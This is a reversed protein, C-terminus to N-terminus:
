NSDRSDLWMGFDMARTSLRHKLLRGYRNRLISKDPNVIMTREPDCTTHLLTWAANDAPPLSYGIITIEEASRLMGAAMKWLRSFPQYPRDEGGYAKLFSPHLLIQSENPPRHPLSADVNHIGLGQLLLPDLAIETELPAPSLAERPIAGGGEASPRFDPSFTPKSYWGIAGHLHLVKVMSPPFDVRTKDYQNQQFVLDTGYGDGPAWKEQDLLVREITSDYNFTIVIDGSELLKGFRRLVEWKPCAYSQKDLHNRHLFYSEMAWLLKMRVDRYEKVESGFSRHKAVAAEAEEQAASAKLM